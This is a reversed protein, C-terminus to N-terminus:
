RCQRNSSMRFNINYGKTQLAEVFAGANQNNDMTFGASGHLSVSTPSIQGGPSQQYRFQNVNSSINVNKSKLELDTVGNEQAQAEIKAIEGDIFTLAPRVELIQKNFNVTLNVEERMVCKKEDPKAEEAYAPVVLAFGVM